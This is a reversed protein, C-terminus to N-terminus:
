FFIIKGLPSIDVKGTESYPEFMEKLDYQLTKFMAAAYLPVTICFGDASSITTVVLFAAYVVLAYAIHFYPFRFIYEEYPLSFLPFHHNKKSKIETTACISM